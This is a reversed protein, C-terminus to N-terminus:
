KNISLKENLVVYMETQSLSSLLNYNTQQKLNKNILKEIINQINKNSLSNYKNILTSLKIVLKEGEAGVNFEDSLGSEELWQNTNEFNTPITNQEFANFIIMTKIKECTNKIDTAILNLEANQQTTDNKISQALAILKEQHLYNNTKTIYFQKSSKLSTQLFFVGALM